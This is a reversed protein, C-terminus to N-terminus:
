RDDAVSALHRGDACFSVSRVWRDNAGGAFIPSPPPFLHRSSPSLRANAPSRGALPPWGARPASVGAGAPRQGEPPGVRHGQHRLLGHGVAGRRSLVRLVGRRQPAGGAEPDAHVQGHELAVGAPLLARNYGASPRWRCLHAMNLSALLM